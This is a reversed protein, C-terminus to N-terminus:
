LDHLGHDRDRTGILAKCQGLSLDILYLVYSLIVRM